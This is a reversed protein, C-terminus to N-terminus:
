LLPRQVNSTHREYGQERGCLACQNDKPHPTFAHDVQGQLMMQQHM